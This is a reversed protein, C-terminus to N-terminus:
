SQVHYSCLQIIRSICLICLWISLMSYFFLLKNSKQNSLHSCCQPNHSPKQHNPHRDSQLLNDSEVFVEFWTKSQISPVFTDRIMVSSAKKLLTKYIILHNGRPSISADETWSKHGSRVDQMILVCNIYSCVTLRGVFRKLKKISCNTM